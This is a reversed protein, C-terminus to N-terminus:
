IIQYDSIGGLIFLFLNSSNYNDTFFGIILWGVFAGLFLLTLDKM